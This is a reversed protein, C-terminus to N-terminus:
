ASFDSSDSGSDKAKVDELKKLLSNGFSIRYSPSIHNLLAYPTEFYGNSLETKDDYAHAAIRFGSASLEICYQAGEVTTVNLYICQNTSRIRDSIGINQVHEQIDQIVATAEAKWQDGTLLIEEQYEAMIKPGLVSCVNILITHCSVTWQYVVDLM